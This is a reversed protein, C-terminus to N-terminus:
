GRYFGPIQSLNGAGEALEQQEYDRCAATYDERSFPYGNMTAIDVVGDIDDPRLERLKMRLSADEKMAHIFDLASEKAM